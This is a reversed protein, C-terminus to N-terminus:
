PNNDDIRRGYSCGVPDSCNLPNDYARRGKYKKRLDEFHEVVMQEIRAIAEEATDCKEVEFYGLRGEGMDLNACWGRRPEKFYYIPPWDKTLVENDTYIIVEKM